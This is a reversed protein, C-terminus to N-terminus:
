WIMSVEFKPVASKYHFVQTPHSKFCWTVSYHTSVNFSSSNTTDTVEM